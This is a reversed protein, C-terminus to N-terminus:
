LLVVRYGFCVTRSTKNAVDHYAYITSLSGNYPVEVFGSYGWSYLIVFAYGYSLTGGANYRIGYVSASGCYDRAVLKAVVPVGCNAFNNNINTLAVGANAAPNVLADYLTGGGEDVYFYDYGYHHISVNASYMIFCSILKEFQNVQSISDSLRCKCTEDEIYLFVYIKKGAGVLGAADVGASFYDWYRGAIIINSVNVYVSPISYILHCLITGAVKCTIDRNELYEINSLNWDVSSDDTIWLYPIDFKYQQVGAKVPILNGYNDIIEYDISANVNLFRGCPYVIRFAM